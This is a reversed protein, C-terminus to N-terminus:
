AQIIKTQEDIFKKLADALASLKERADPPLDGGAATKKAVDPNQLSPLIALLMQLSRIIRNQTAGLTGCAEALETPGTADGLDTLVRAQTIAMAAENNGLLALAQQVTIMEPAFPFKDVVDIIDARIAQQGILIVQGITDARITKRSAIATNVRQTEQAALIKLLRARLLEYKRAREAAVKAADRVIIKFKPTATTQPGGLNGLRRGDTATAHYVIVDGERYRDGTKIPYELEASTKGRAKQFENVVQPPQGELSMLLKVTALGYDDSIKL